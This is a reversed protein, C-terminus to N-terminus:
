ATLDILIKSFAGPAADWDALAQPAQELPYTATVLSEYPREHRQLMGIVAPFVRLANRSGRIDLEKRVFDRTEFSVESKAYGIYVIRGAFCACEVALRYTQPLGVAEIAVSVGEGHTLEDVAARVDDRTDVTYAAGFASANALKAPEIDAGIVTAGKRAAAAVAGIGITGCGLVLVTDNETVQGRNAAHYGVSMPEVLALERATLGEGVYVKRYDVALRQRMAGDRQVGLTENFECCNPRGARCAPCLGCETYPSVTVAAGLPLREPVREGRAVIVGSVEHGLVRPYSVMPSLGRYAQLDAGCLGVYRMEILVQEPGPTQEPLDVVAVQYPAGLSVAKM